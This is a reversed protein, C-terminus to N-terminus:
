RSYPETKQSSHVSAAAQKKKPEPRRLGLALDALELLRSNSRAVGSGNEWAREGRDGKLTFSPRVWVEPALDTPSKRDSRKKEM